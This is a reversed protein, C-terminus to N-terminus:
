GNRVRRIIKIIKERDKFGGTEVGSSIDISYPNQKMAEDINELCIGGALFFPKDTKPIKSWDFSQGSGAQPSDFLLFDSVRNIEQGVRLAIITPANIKKIYSDSENGHLQAIDITGEDILRNVFDVDADVFVGVSKITRSLRSRLIRAYEPTVERRSKAFVFGVYDPQAENVYDIDVERFLGCIKIKM